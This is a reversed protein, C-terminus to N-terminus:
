RCGQGTTITTSLTSLLQSDFNDKITSANEPNAALNKSLKDIIKKYYLNIKTYLKLTKLYKEIDKHITSKKSKQLLTNLKNLSSETLKKKKKLILSLPSNSTISLETPLYIRKDVPLYEDINAFFRQWAPSHFEPRDSSNAPDLLSDALQLM